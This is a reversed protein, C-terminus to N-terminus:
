PCTVKEIMWLVGGAFISDNNTYQATDCNVNVMSTTDLPFGLSSFYIYNVMCNCDDNKKCSSIFMVFLLLAMAKM